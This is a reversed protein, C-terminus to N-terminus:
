SHAGKGEFRRRRYAVALALMGASASWWAAPEPVPSVTPECYGLTSMGVFEDAPATIVRSVTGSRLETLSARARGADTVSLKSALAPTLTYSLVFNGTAPDQALGWYGDAALNDFEDVLVPASSNGLSSSTVYYFWSSKGVANTISANLAETFLPANVGPKDFYGPQGKVTFSTGNYAVDQTGGVPTQLNYPNNTINSNLEGILPDSVQRNATSWDLNLWNTMAIYNDNPVGAANGQELTMFTRFEGPSGFGQTDFGLVAWRLSSSATNLNRLQQFPTDGAGSLTWFRQYGADQQGTAFFNDLGIGLDMTYSAERVPDWIFLALEGNDGRGIAGSAPLGVCMGLFVALASAFRRGRARLCIALDNTM